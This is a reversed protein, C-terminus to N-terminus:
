NRATRPADLTQFLQVFIRHALGPQSVSKAADENVPAGVVIMGVMGLAAHPKCHYGYIGPQTLTVTLDSNITGAFPQAGDPIMDQISEVDHGKDEAVFHVTDGPAIRLLQPDFQMAHDPGKNVMKIEYEAATARSSSIGSLIAISIIATSAVGTFSRM